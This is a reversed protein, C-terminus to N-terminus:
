EENPNTASFRYRGAKVPRHKKHADRKQKQSQEVVRTVGHDSTLVVSYRDKGVVRDLEDLLVGIQKDIHLLLDFRSGPAGVVLPTTDARRVLDDQYRTILLQVALPLAGVLAVCLILIGTRVKHYVLYRWALRFSGTM